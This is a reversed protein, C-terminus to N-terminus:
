YLTHDAPYGCHANDTLVADIIRMKSPPSCRGAAPVPLHRRRSALRIRASLAHHNECFTSRMDAVISIRSPRRRTFYLTQIMAQEDPFTFTPAALYVVFDLTLAGSTQLTELVGPAVSLLKTPTLREVACYAPCLELQVWTREGKDNEITLPIHISLM